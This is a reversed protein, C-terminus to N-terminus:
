LRKISLCILAACLTGPLRIRGEAGPNLVVPRCSNSLCDCGLRRPHWVQFSCSWGNVKQLRNPAALMKEVTKLIREIPKRSRAVLSM